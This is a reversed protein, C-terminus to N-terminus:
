DGAALKALAARAELLGRARDHWDAMAAAAAQDLREVTAVAGALDGASLKERAAGLVYSAPAGSLVRDGDRVTVMSQIQLWMKEALSDAETMPKSAEAARKAAADFDLRLQAETPPPVTAYRTLAKPAGPIEGLPKGAALAASAAQLRALLAARAATSAQAQETQALRQQLASLQNAVGPAEAPAAAPAPRQELAAVRRELPRLDVSAPAPAPAPAAELTAVRQALAAIRSDLAAVRAPDVSRALQQQQIWVWALGVFLLLFGVASLVPLASRQPAPKPAAPPAPAQPPKVGAPPVSAKPGLAATSAAAPAPTPAAPPKPAPKGGPEPQPHTETM